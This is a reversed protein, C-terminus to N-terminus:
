GTDEKVTKCYEVRSVESYHQNRCPQGKRKRQERETPVYQRRGPREGRGVEWMSAHRLNKQLSLKIM